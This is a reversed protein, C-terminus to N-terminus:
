PYPVPLLHLRPRSGTAPHLLARSRFRTRIPPSAKPHAIHQLPHHMRYQYCPHHHPNFAHSLPHPCPCPANPRLNRNHQLLIPIWRWRLVRHDHIYLRYKTWRKTATRRSFITRRNTKPGPPNTISTKLRVPAAGSPPHGTRPHALLAATIQQPNRRDALLRAPEQPTNRM